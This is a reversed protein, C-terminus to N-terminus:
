QAISELMVTKMQFVNRSKFVFITKASNSIPARRIAKVRPNVFARFVYNIPSATEQAQASQAAFEATVNPAQQVNTTLAAISFNSADLYLIEPPELSVHVFALMIKLRASPTRVVLMPCHAHISANRTLALNVLIANMTIPASLITM